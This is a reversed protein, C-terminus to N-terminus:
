NVFEKGIDNDNKVREYNQEEVYDIAKLKAEKETDGAIQYYEQAQQIEGDTILIDDGAEYINELDETCAAYQGELALKYECEESNQDESEYITDLVKGWQESKEEKQRGYSALPIGVVISMSLIAVILLKKKM